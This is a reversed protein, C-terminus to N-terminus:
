GSPVETATSTGAAGLVAAAQDIAANLESSPLEGLGTASRLYPEFLRWSLQLAVSHAAALRADLDTEHQEKLEDILVAIGPHSTQLTDTPYGDLTARAMVRSHIDVAADFEPGTIHRGILDAVRRGLDDLVAGVLQEKTGFHRFVLGYNVGARAAVQRLSTQSPGQDAFLEAAATLIAPVVSPGTPKPPTAPKARKTAM